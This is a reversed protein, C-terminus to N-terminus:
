WVQTFSLFLFLHMSSPLFYLNVSSGSKGWDWIALHLSHCGGAGRWPSSSHLSHRVESCSGAWGLVIDVGVAKPLERHAGAFRPEWMVETGVM